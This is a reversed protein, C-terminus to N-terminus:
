AFWAYRVQVAGDLRQNATANITFGVGAIFNDCSLDLDLIEHETANHDSTSDSAVVFASASGKATMATLGTVAISTTNTGPVPKAPATQTNVTTVTRTNALIVSGDSFTAALASSQIVSVFVGTMYACAYSAAPMKYVSWSIGDPSTASSGNTATAM